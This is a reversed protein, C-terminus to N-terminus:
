SSNHYSILSLYSTCGLFERHYCHLSCLTCQKSLSVDEQVTSWGVVSTPFWVYQTQIWYFGLNDRWEWSIRNQSTNCNFALMGTKYKSYWAPLWKDQCLNMMKREETGRPNHEYTKHNALRLNSLSFGECPFIQKAQLNLQDYYGSICQGYNRDWGAVTASFVDGNWASRGVCVSKNPPCRGAFWPQKDETRRCCVISTMNWSNGSARISTESLGPAVQTNPGGQVISWVRIGGCGRM